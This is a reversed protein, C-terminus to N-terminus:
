LSRIALECREALEIMGPLDDENQRFSEIVESIAPQNAKVLETLKDAYERLILAVGAAHVGEDDAMAGQTYEELLERLTWVVCNMGGQEDYDEGMEVALPIGLLIEPGEDGDGTIFLNFSQESDPDTPLEAGESDRGNM